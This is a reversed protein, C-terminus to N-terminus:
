STTSGLSLLLHASTMGPVSVYPIPRLSKVSAAVCGCSILDPYLGEGLVYQNGCCGEEDFLLWSSPALLATLTLLVILM